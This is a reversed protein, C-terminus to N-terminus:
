QAPQAPWQAGTRRVLLEALLTSALPSLELTPSRLQEIRESFCAADGLMDCAALAAVWADANSPDADLELEAQARALQARGHRAALLALASPRLTERAAAHLAGADDGANLREVVPDLRATSGRRLDDLARTGARTPSFARFSELWARAQAPQGLALLLRAVLLNAAEDDPKGDVAHRADALADALNSRREACLAREYFASPCDGDLTLAKQFAVRAAEVGAAPTALLCQMRGIRAWIEASEGDLAHAKRYADLARPLDGQAEWEAGRAYAAYAEPSIFRGEYPVGRSVRIVPEEGEFCAVLSACLLACTLLRLCGFSV